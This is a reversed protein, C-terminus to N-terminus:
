FFPLYMISAGMTTKIIHNGNEHQIPWYRWQERHHVAAASDNMFELRWDNQVFTAPLYSYYSVVDWAIVRQPYKNSETKYHGLNLYVLLGIVGCLIISLKTLKHM